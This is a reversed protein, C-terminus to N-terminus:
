ALTGVYFADLAAVYQGAQNLRKGYMQNTVYVKIPAHDTDLVVCGAQNNSIVTLNRNNWADYALHESAANGFLTLKPKTVDLFDYLRDSDRGHHPAVLVDLNTVEATHNKLIHEWTMDHSDAAILIRGGVSHYLLVYSYDNCEGSERAGAVLGPTPALIHLGDGAAGTTDGQNFYKGKQGSYLTLRKPARQPNGDRLKKYFWWDDESYPSGGKFTKEETNDTDWFNVPNFEQFFSELGGMHDMDPHTLVFRFVSTVSRKRLYVIPDVPNKKQHYNGPIGLGKRLAELVETDAGANNVDIVTVHGSPHQIISCDGNLVNLFHFIGM